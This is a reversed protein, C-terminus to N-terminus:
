YVRRPTSREATTALVTAQQQVKAVPSMDTRVLADELNVNLIPVQLRQGQVDVSATVTGFVSVNPRQMLWSGFALRLGLRQQPAAYTYGRRFLKRSGSISFLRSSPVVLPAAAEPDGRAYPADHALVRGCDMIPEEPRLDLDDASHVKVQTSLVIGMDPRKAEVDRAFQWEGWYGTSDANYAGKERDLTNMVYQMAASRGGATYEASAAVDAAQEILKLAGHLVNTAEIQIAYSQPDTAPEEFDGLKIPEFVQLPLSEHHTM